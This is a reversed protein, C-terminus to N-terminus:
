LVDFFTSPLNRDSFACEDFFCSTKMPLTLQHFIVALKFLKEDKEILLSGICLASFILLLLLTEINGL